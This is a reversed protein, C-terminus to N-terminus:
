ILYMNDPITHCRKYAVQQPKNEQSRVSELRLTDEIKFYNFIFLITLYKKTKGASARIKARHIPNSLDPKFPNL